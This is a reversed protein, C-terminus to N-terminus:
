TNAMLPLLLVCGNIPLFKRHVQRITLLIHFRHLPNAQKHSIVVYRTKGMTIPFHYLFVMNGSVVDQYENWMGGVFGTQEGTWKIWAIVTVSQKKGHINLAGTEAHALSLYGTGNFEASFGSLPGEHVRTIPGNMEKLPFANKAASKRAQGSEESFDWLAVLGRTSSLIQKLNKSEQGFVAFSQISFFVGILVGIIFKVRM